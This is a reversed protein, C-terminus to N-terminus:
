EQQEKLVREAELRAAEQAARDLGEQEMAMKLAEMEAQEKEFALRALEADRLAQENDDPLPEDNHPQEQNDQEPVQDSSGSGDYDILTKSKYRELLTVPHYLDNSKMDDDDLVSGQSFGFEPTFPVLEEVIDKLQGTELRSFVDRLLDQSWNFSLHFNVLKLIVLTDLPTWREVKGGTLILFEPPFVSATAGGDFL